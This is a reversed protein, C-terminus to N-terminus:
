DSITPQISAADSYIIELDSPIAESFKLDIGVECGLIANLEEAGDLTGWVLKADPALGALFGVDAYQTVSARSPHSFKALWRIKKRKCFEAIKEQPIPIDMHDARDYAIGHEGPGYGLYMERLYLHLDIKCDLIGGIEEEMAALVALAPVDAPNFEILMAAAGADPGTRIPQYLWTLRRIRSRQGFAIIRENQAETLEPKSMTAVRPINYCVPNVRM